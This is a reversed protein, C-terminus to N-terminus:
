MKSPNKNFVRILSSYKKYKVYYISSKLIYVFNSYAAIAFLKWLDHVLFKLDHDLDLIYILDFSRFSINPRFKLRFHIGLIVKM